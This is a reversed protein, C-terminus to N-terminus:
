DTIAIEINDTEAPEEERFRWRSVRTNDIPQARRDALPETRFRAPKRYEIPQGTAKPVSPLDPFHGAIASL